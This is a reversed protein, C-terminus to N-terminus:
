PGFGLIFMSLRILDQLTAIAVIHPGRQIANLQNIVVSESPNITPLYGYNSPAIFWCVYRKPAGCQVLWGSPPRYSM